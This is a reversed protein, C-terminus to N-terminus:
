VPYTFRNEEVQTLFDGWLGWESGDSSTCALVWLSAIPLQPVQLASPDFRVRRNLHLVVSLDKSDAYKVLSAMISELDSEGNVKAPVVEKLQVPAIQQEGGRVWSAVFDCDQSEGRSVYVTHGLRQGMGYCFLAGMRTERWEKLRNTRLQRVAPGLPVEALRDDLLKLRKLFPVPDRYVRRGLERLRIADM